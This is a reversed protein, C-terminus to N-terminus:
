QWFATKERKLPSRPTENLELPSSQDRTVDIPKSTENLELQPQQLSNSRGWNIGISLKNEAIEDRVEDIQQRIEANQQQNVNFFFYFLTLYLPLITLIGILFWNQLSRATRDVSKINVRNQRIYEETRTVRRDLKLDEQSVLKMGITKEIDLPIIYLSLWVMACQEARYSMRGFIVM